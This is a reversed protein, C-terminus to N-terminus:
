AGPGPRYALQFIRRLERELETRKDELVDRVEQKRLFLFFVRMNDLIRERERRAYLALAATPPLALAYLLAAAAGLTANVAVTQGAWFAGFTGIGLTAKATDYQYRDAALRPALYGTLLVTAFIPM